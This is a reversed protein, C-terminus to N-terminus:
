QAGHGWGCVVLPPDGDALGRTQGAVDRNYDQHNVLTHIVFHPISISWRQGHSHTNRREVCVQVRKM